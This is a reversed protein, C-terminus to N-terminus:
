RAAETLKAEILVRRPIGARVEIRQIRGAQLEDIRGLLRCVEDCLVFDALESEHRGSSDADLKIDLLLTPPPNFVPERDRVQLDLIQGYDISQCLRVLVQRPTSLASLRTLVSV